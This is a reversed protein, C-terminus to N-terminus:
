QKLLSFRINQLRGVDLLIFGNIAKSNDRTFEIVGLKDTLFRDGNIHSLDVSDFGLYKKFTSPTDMTLKDNTFRVPYEVKLDKQYYRGAYGALENPTLIIKEGVKKSTYRIGGQHWLMEYGNGNPEKIFTCQADFAKLFFSNEKEAFLQFRDSGPLILWFTDREVIFGLEMGDEMQYNGAFQNARDFNIAVEIRPKPTEKVTKGALLIDAISNALRRTNISENNFMLIITLKEDPFMMFQSRFGPVGGSHEVMKVGKYKIVNFGYTYYLSDGSELTNYPTFIRNMISSSGIKASMFNQGWRIMDNLDIYINGSGYSFDTTSSVMVPKGNVMKYGLSNNELKIAPDNYVLASNMGLPKFVRSNLYESFSMGSVQKVIQALLAYGANSYVHRTNPKFNLQPYQRILEIEKQQDWGEDLSMGAFLRLVDTSAIGSTHQLLNRITIKHEYKPLYPLYTRIDDDLGIKGEEDLLLISFATFQKSVSAIDFTTTADISRGNETDAVGYGKALLIKDGSLIGVVGGPNGGTHQLAMLSDVKQTLKEASHTQADVTLVLASYILLIVLMLTKM